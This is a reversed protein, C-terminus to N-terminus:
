IPSVLALRLTLAASTASTFLTTPWATEAELKRESMFAFPLMLAASVALTFDWTPVDSGGHHSRSDSEAPVRALPGMKRSFFVQCSKARVRLIPAGWSTLTIGDASVCLFTPSNCGPAAM